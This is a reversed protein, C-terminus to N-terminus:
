TLIDISINIDLPGTMGALGSFDLYCNRDTARFTYMASYIDQHVNTTASYAGYAFSSSPTIANGDSDYPSVSAGPAVADEDITSAVFINVVYQAKPKLILFKNVLDKSFWPSVKSGTAINALASLATAAPIVYGTQDFSTLETGNIRKCLEVTYELKINGVPGAITPTNVLGWFLKAQNAQRADAVSGPPGQGESVYRFERDLDLPLICSQWVNSQINDKLLVADDYTPPQEDAVDSLQGLIISGGTTSNCTSEFVLAAKTFRFLQFNKAEDALIKLAPYLPNLTMEQNPSGSTYTNDTSTVSSFVVETASVIKSDYVGSEKMSIPPRKITMGVTVPASTMKRSDRDAEELTDENRLLKKMRRKNRAKKVEAEYRAVALATYPNVMSAARVAQNTLKRATNAAPMAARRYIPRIIPQYVYKDLQRRSM